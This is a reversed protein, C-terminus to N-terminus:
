TKFVIFSFMLYNWTLSVLTAAAKASNKRVFEHSLAKDLRTLQAVKWALEVPWEWVDLLFWIVLNQLVYLGFATVVFFELGQVFVNGGTAKFVFGRNLSFSVVMAVSTSILNAPIKGLGIRKNTLINFIVFDVLTNLIGVLGFRAVSNFM